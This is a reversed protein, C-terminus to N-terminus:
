HLAAGPTPGSLGPLLASNPGRKIIGAIVDVLPAVLAVVAAFTLRRMSFTM